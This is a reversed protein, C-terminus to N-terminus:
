FTVTVAPKVMVLSIHEPEFSFSPSVQLTAMAHM